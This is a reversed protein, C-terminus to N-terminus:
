FGGPITLGLGGRTVPCSEEPCEDEDRVMILHELSSKGSAFSLDGDADRAVIWDVGAAEIKTCDYHDRGFAGQAFGHIVDGVALPKRNM